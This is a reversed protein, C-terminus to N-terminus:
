TRFTGAVWEFMILEVEFLISEPMSTDSRETKHRYDRLGLLSSRM